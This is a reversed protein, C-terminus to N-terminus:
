ALRPSRPSMALKRSSIFSDPHKQKGAVLYSLVPELNEPSRRDQLFIPLARSSFLSPQAAHPRPPPLHCARSLSLCLTPVPLAPPARLGNGGHIKVLSIVLYSCDWGQSPREGRSSTVGWTFSSIKRDGQSFVLVECWTGGEMGHSLSKTGRAVSTSSPWASCASSAPGVYTAPAVPRLVFRGEEREDCEAQFTLQGCVVGRLGPTRTFPRPDWRLVTVDTRRAQTGQQAVGPSVM